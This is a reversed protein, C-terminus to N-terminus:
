PGRPLTPLAVSFPVVRHSAKRMGRRGEASPGDVERLTETSPAGAHGFTQVPRASAVSWSVVLPSFGERTDKRRNSSGQSPPAGGNREVYSHAVWNQGTKQTAQCRATVTPTKKKKKADLERSGHTNKALVFFFNNANEAASQGFILFVTWPLCFAIRCGACFFKFAEKM